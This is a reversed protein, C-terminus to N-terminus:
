ALVVPFMLMVERACRTATEVSGRGASLLPLRVGADPIEGTAHLAGKIVAPNPEAFAAASLAALAGGIERAARVDGSGWAAHLRAFAATALHASALIAAPAGLALLPSVFLDDGALFAFDPPPGALLGVAEPDVAGTAYKIGIVGPIGALARLTAESLSRATRYPIHYAVLPVPSVRALEGFHALVGAESPRTYPPVPVLAATVAPWADLGALVAASSRTDSSGAGVILPVRREAAVAACAGIVTRKEAASLAASEGTTGLAVLGAAGDELVRHALATLASVAIEGDATFPTILPVYIGRLEPAARRSRDPSALSAAASGSPASPRPSPGASSNM